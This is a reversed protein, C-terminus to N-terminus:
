RDEKYGTDSISALPLRCIVSTGLNEESRILFTGGMAETRQKMNYLGNGRSGSRSDFGSGNDEITLQLQQGALGLTVTVETAGSYRAINNMAEKAILLVNKRAEIHLLKKEAEQDIVYRTSIGLPTLLEFGYNKVKKEFSLESNQGTNIAWVIDSMNEMVQRSNTRIQHLADLTAVPNKDIAKEAVSSYV